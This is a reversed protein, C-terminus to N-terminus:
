RCSHGNNYYPLYPNGAPDPEPEPAEILPFPELPFDEPDDPEFWEHFAPQRLEPSESAGLLRNCRIRERWRVFRVSKKGQEVAVGGSVLASVIAAVIAYIITYLVSHRPKTM